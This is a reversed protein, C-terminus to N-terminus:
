SYGTACKDRLRAVYLLCVHTQHSLTNEGLPIDLPGVDSGPTGVAHYQNLVSLLDWNDM